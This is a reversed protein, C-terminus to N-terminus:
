EPEQLIGAQVLRERMKAHNPHSTSLTSFYLRIGSAYAEALHDGSLHEQLIKSEFLIPGPPLFKSPTGTSPLVDDLIAIDGSAAIQQAIALFARSFLSGLHFLAKEDKELALFTRLLYWARFADNPTKFLYHPNKPDIFLNFFNEVFDPNEFLSQSIRADDQSANSCHKLFSVSECLVLPDFGPKAHVLAYVIAEALLVITNQESRGARAAVFLARRTYGREVLDFFWAEAHKTVLSELSFQKILDECQTLREDERSLREDAESTEFLLRKVGDLAAPALEKPTLGAKKWEYPTKQYEIGARERLYSSIGDRAAQTIDKRPLKLYEGVIFPETRAGQFSLYGSESFQTVIAERAITSLNELSLPGTTKPQQHMQFILSLAKQARRPHKAGNQLAFAIVYDVEKATMPLAANPCLTQVIYNRVSDHDAFETKLFFRPDSIVSITQACMGLRIQDNDLGLHDRFFHGSGSKELLQWLRFAREDTLNNAIARFAARQENSLVFGEKKSETFIRDFDPGFPGPDYPISLTEKPPVPADFFTGIFVMEEYAGKGFLNKWSREGTELISYARRVAEGFPARESESRVYNQVIIRESPSLGQLVTEVYEPHTVLLHKLDTIHAPFSDNLSFLFFWRLNTKQLRNANDLPTKRLEQFCIIPLEKASIKFIEAWKEILASTPGERELFAKQIAKKGMLLMSAFAIPNNAEADQLREQMDQAQEPSFSFHGNEIPVACMVGGETFLEILSANQKHDDEHEFHARDPSPERSFPAM